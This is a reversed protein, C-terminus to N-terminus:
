KLEEWLDILKVDGYLKLLDRLSLRLDEVTGIITLINM